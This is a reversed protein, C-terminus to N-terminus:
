SVYRLLGQCGVGTSKGPFDWPHLLGHAATWPTAYLRVRSLSKAAAAAAASVRTLCLRPGAVLPLITGSASLAQVPM